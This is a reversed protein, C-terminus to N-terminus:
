AHARDTRLLVSLQAPVTRDNAILHLAQAPNYQAPRPKRM